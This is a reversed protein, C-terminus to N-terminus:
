ASCSECHRTTINVPDVVPNTRLYYLGTKLGRKWGHFLASSVVQPTPQAVFLNMSQSQDVYPGRDAAQDILVKQKIEWVTKYLAKLDDPVAAIAQVSGKHQILQTRIDPTWLGRALLDRALYRNIMVFEGALTRRVYLNSTIPEFCEVSGLINATSATPMLATVLSNRTGHRQMDRKLGAWDYRDSPTAGWLEIQTRGQSFPSGAFTEYPGQEQALRVSEALAHYYICEFIDRNLQMAEPSDFPYRLRFYADALGQVGLGIPRHRLNSTETERTPYYNVDIVRNLGRVMLRTIRGLEEFDFADDRVFQGLAISGLNCVATEQHDSYETIEACQGTLIGNFLGRHRLPETFCYTPMRAKLMNVEAIRHEKVRDITKHELPTLDLVGRLYPRLGRNLLGVVDTGDITLRHSCPSTEISADVGMEVLLLQTRKLFPFSPHEVVVGVQHRDTVHRVLRGGADLLGALWNWRTVADCGIPVFGKEDLDPPLWARIRDGTTKLDVVHDVEIHGLLAHHTPPLIVRPFARGGATTEYHGHVNFVGHTYPHKMTGGAETEVDTPLSWPELRDGRELDAATVEVPASSGDRLVYFKHEATCELSQGSELRVSYLLSDSGTQQVTVASWQEGNWVDVAQGALTEITRHGHRTLLWTKPGVCLNSSKITGYNQQNSKRNIHDKFLVYPTGTEIQAGIMRHWVDRAPVTSRAKGDREYTEYLTRFADGYADDLGPCEDPDFFSWPADAEVREMFLDPIWAALFLDRCRMEENGFNKRLDCFDLFEPHTPSLYIAFSGKRRGGQDIHRATQNLVRLFPILGSSKGGSGRIYAGASRINNVHLGIGGAHKSILATQLNTDYMGRVSDHTGLLFCSSGQPKPTGSHFLTPTAPTCQLQSFADYAARVADLDPGHTQIAVRLWLDQPREFVHESVGLLYGRKLTKLGFYDIRFDREYRLMAQLADANARVTNMYGLGLLGKEFLLESLELFAHKVDKHISSAVLYGALTAYDPHVTAMGMAVESALEDLARTEMEDSMQQIVKQSVLASDVDKSGIQEAVRAIRTHVASFDMEEYEGIRNIVRM